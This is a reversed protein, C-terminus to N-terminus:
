KYGIQILSASDVGTLWTVLSMTAPFSTQGALTWASYQTGGATTFGIYQKVASSIFSINGPAAVTGLLAIWYWDTTGSPVTYNLSTIVKKGNTSTSVSGFNSLLADARMEGSVTTSSYIGVSVLAGASGATTITFAIESIVLGAPLQVPMLWLQNQNLTTNTTAATSPWFQRYWAGYTAVSATTAVPRNSSFKTISPFTQLSGTGDIYQDPTGSIYSITGATSKVVGTGSLQAQPVYGLATTVQSSTIASLYTTTDLAFTGAATMKVFPTGTTWTPYNLGGWTGISNDVYTKIAKQSPVLLDSDAALLPDRDIPVGRTTGQAM